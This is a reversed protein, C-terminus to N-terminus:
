ASIAMARQFLITLPQLKSGQTNTTATDVFSWWFPKQFLLTLLVCFQYGLLPSNSLESTRRVGCQKPIYDLIIINCSLTYTKAWEFHSTGLTKIYHFNGKQNSLYSGNFCFTLRTLCETRYTQQFHRNLSSARRWRIRNYKNPFCIYSQNKAAMSLTSM